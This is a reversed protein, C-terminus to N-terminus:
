RDRLYVRVSVPRDNAASTSKDPSDFYAELINDAAQPITADFFTVGSVPSQCIAWAANETLVGGRVAFSGGASTLHATEDYEVAGGCSYIEQVARLLSRLERRELRTRSLTILNLGVSFGVGLIVFLILFWRLSFSRRM